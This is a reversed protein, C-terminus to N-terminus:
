CLYQVTILYTAFNPANPFGSSIKQKSFLQFAVVKLVVISFILYLPGPTSVDFVPRPDSSRSIFDHMLKERDPNKLIASNSAIVSLSNTAETWDIDMAM